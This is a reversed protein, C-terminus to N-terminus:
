GSLDSMTWDLQYVRYPIDSELGDYTAGLASAVSLIESEFAEPWDIGSEEPISQGKAEVVGDISLVERVLRGRDFLSFGYTGSVGECLWCVVQNQHDHTHKIWLEPQFMLVLESDVIYTWGHLQYAAKRVVNRRSSESILADGVTQRNCVWPPGDLRYGALEFMQPVNDLYDGEISVVSIHLSM